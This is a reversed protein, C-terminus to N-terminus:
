KKLLEHGISCSLCQLRDCYHNKLQILAQSDQATRSAIGLEEWMRTIYNNEPPLQELLSLATERLESRNQYKGYIFMIPIICNIIILNKMSGGMIKKRGGEKGGLRYHFNWYVPLDKVSLLKKLQKITTSELISTFLYPNTRIMESVQAIRIDPFNQPHMRAYKWVVAPISHLDYKARLFEFESKLCKFYPEEVDQDLMGAMGFVYAHLLDPSDRLRGFINFDLRDALMAFAEKNVNTGMSMFLQKYFIREWDQVTSEIEKEVWSVRSQLREINLREKWINWVQPSVKEPHLRSCPIGVLGANMRDYKEVVTPDIYELLLLVPIPAGNPTVVAMDNHCVVHLIVNNYAPDNQHGHAYWDSSNLHMEIHGALITDGIRIKGNLFDPGSNSNYNGFDLIELRQGDALKIGTRELQKTRWLYHMLQESRITTTIETFM